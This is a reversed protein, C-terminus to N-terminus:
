ARLEVPVPASSGANRALDVAGIWDPVPHAVSSVCADWACEASDTAACAPLSVVAILSAWRLRIM